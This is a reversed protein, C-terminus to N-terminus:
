VALPKIVSGCCISCVWREEITEDRVFLTEGCKICAIEKGDKGIFNRFKNGSM